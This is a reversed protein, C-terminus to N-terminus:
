SSASTYRRLGYMWTLRGVMFFVIALVFLKVISIPHTFGFLIDSPITVMLAIPVITTFIHQPVVTYIEKPFRSMDFLSSFMFVMNNLREVFLTITMFAFFVAYMLFISVIMAVCFWVVQEWSIPIGRQIVGFIIMGVGFLASPILSFGFTNCSVLFQTDMPKVLMTDFLGTHMMKPLKEFSRAMWGWIFVNFFRFVGIVVFMESMGWQGITQINTYLMTSFLLEVCNWGTDVFFWILFNVRYEMEVMWSIRFFAGFLSLYRRM